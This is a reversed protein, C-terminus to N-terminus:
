GFYASDVSDHSRARGRRHIRAHALLSSPRGKGELIEEVGDAEPPQAGAAAPGAAAPEAAPEAPPAGAAAPGPKVKPAEMVLNMGPNLILYERNNGFDRVWGDIELLEFAPSVADVLERDIKRSSRWRTGDANLANRLAERARPVASEDLNKGEVGEVVVAILQRKDAELELGSERLFFLELDRRPRMYIKKGSGFNQIGLGQAGVASLWIAKGPDLEFKRSMTTHVLPTGERLIFPPAPPVMKEEEDEQAAM